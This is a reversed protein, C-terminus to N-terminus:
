SSDGPCSFESWRCRSQETGILWSLPGMGETLRGVQYDTIVTRGAEPRPKLRVARESKPLFLSLGSSLAGPGVPVDVYAWMPGGWLARSEEEERRGRFTAKFVGRLLVSKQQARGEIGGSNWM